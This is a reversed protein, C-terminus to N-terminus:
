RELRPTRRRATPMAGTPEALDERLGKLLRDLGFQFQADSNVTALHPALAVTTPYADASLSEFSLRQQREAEPGPDSGRQARGLAVGITYSTLAFYARAADQPDFGASCCLQLGIERVRNASSLRMRQSAVLQVFSPHACFFDYLRRMYARLQAEWDDGATALDAVEISAILANAVAETLEDKDRFHRYIAMGAVGLQEGLARVTLAELGHREVLEVAAEVVATRTLSGRAARKTPAAVVRDERLARTMTPAQM